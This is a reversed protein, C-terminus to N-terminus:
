LDEIKDLYAQAQQLVAQQQQQSQKQWNKYVMAQRPNQSFTQQHQVMFHWYLSNIPCAKDGTKQKVKYDCHDCYDSMKNVYNGSAAYAKSGLLGGDAYQSMGRTNPLEVWEIADVYIGLYWEDVEDPAIGTLLCFNGTIMLRQIHHAYGYSLSQDIAQHLCNMKTRGHWFWSPLPRNANLANSTQYKPMNLWYIGRVFERWGLIQRVFGEIQALSIETQNSRYHEIATTIVYHPSLIKANLCFSLRSHYLSWQKDSYLDKAQCTMADQFQGFKPLLYRCFYDLLQKAQQRTVPWLLQAEGHGIATVNHKKLRANIDSVDNAFLMPDPLEALDQAKLKNRNDVDYNWKGGEPQGDCMLLHFRKRMKRYFAEMRHATNAKFDKALDAHALFFHETEVCETRIRLPECFENLQESLRFEDPQQYAFHQIQYTNILHNLLDPLDSFEATDDLTLHLVHHGSQSLANAFLGMAKFFCQIKQIHHKAYNLEQKLEAIVYLTHQDKNSFWSHQANLQDGLLLRLTHYQKNIM